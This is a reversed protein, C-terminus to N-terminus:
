RNMISNDKMYLKSEILIKTDLSIDLMEWNFSNQINNAM